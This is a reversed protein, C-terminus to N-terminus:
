HGGSSLEHCPHDQSPTHTVKQTQHRAKFANTTESPILTKTNHTFSPPSITLTHVQIRFSTVSRKTKQLTNPGPDKQGQFELFIYQVTLWQHSAGWHLGLGLWLQSGILGLSLHNRWVFLEKAYVGYTLNHM